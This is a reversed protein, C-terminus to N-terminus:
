KFWRILFFLSQKRCWNNSVIHIKYLVSIISFFRFVSPPRPPLPRTHYLRSLSPPPLSNHAATDQVDSLPGRLLFLHSREIGSHGVILLSGHRRCHPGVFQYIVARTYGGSCRGCTFLILWVISPVCRAVPVLPLGGKGGKEKERKGQIPMLMSPPQSSALSVVPWYLLTVTRNEHGTMRKGWIRGRQGKKRWSKLPHVANVALPTPMRRRMPREAERIFNGQQGRGATGREREKQSIPSILPFQM